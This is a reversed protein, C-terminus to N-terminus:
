NNSNQALSILEQAFDQEPHKSIIQRIHAAAATAVAPWNSRDNWARELVADFFADGIGDAVYGTKGDQMVEATGGAPQAIVLRGLWMAEVVTLPLGEHRSPVLLADHEAWLARIDSTQGRFIIREQLGHQAVLAILREESSGSGYISVTWNRARWKPMALVKVLIDHGKTRPHLRAPMAFRAQRHNDEPNPLSNQEWPLPDGSVLFPNRAIHARPIQYALQTQLLDLNHQSVAWFRRTKSLLRIMLAAVADDPWHDPSVLHTVAAHPIGSMHITELLDLGDLSTGSSFFVFDPRVNKLGRRLRGIPSLRSPILRSLLRRLLGNGTALPRHEVGAQRLQDLRRKSSAPWNTFACVEHGLTKLVIASQIWLEESGGGGKNASVM